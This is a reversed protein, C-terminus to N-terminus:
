GGETHQSPRSRESRGLALLHVGIGVLPGCLLAVITRTELHLPLLLLLGSAVTAGVWGLSYARHLAAAVAAAGTLTLMAISVAAATLWGLLAGSTQYQEGFAVRLVWPGVMAAAFVGGAGIGGILTAPASLARIRDAREDVFHAILNGQMATLPVLLPARTLTVALIIVGGRAGLEDSTLKLLVPFGMVLIASAGAATISHGAGRLFTATSGPTMLRAATRTTPSVVLMILWAVAGAVTAWLFGVLGWSIAVTAVAVSVRIVADTVMLAGYHAWRNTGALMGLLTAHLCFGALGSSLLGVSLWRAEVFVRGSWLPASGAIGIAAALGILGAVRLPRTRSRAPPSLADVYPAARVERTTEQLLGNAAGTVLGFAGWFVGFISFGSPALDRAALYIVAYGCIATLVTAAGVRAVSGRAVPGGSAGTAGIPSASGGVETM